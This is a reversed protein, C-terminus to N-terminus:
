KGVAHSLITRIEETIAIAEDITMDADLYVFDLFLQNNFIHAQASLEPGLDYASVFGHVGDVLIIELAKYIGAPVSAISEGM